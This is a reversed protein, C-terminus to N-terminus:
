KYVAKMFDPLDALKKSLYYEHTIGRNMWFFTVWLVMPVFGYYTVKALLALGWHRYVVLSLVTSVVVIAFYALDLKSPLWRLSRNNQRSWQYVGTLTRIQFVVIVACIVLIAIQFFLPM